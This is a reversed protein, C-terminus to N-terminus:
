KLDPIDRVVLNPYPIKIGAKNFRERVEQNLCWNVTIADRPTDVWVLAGLIMSHPGFKFLRVEVFPDNKDKQAKSRKDMSLPSAEAVERIIEKAKDIDTDYTIEFQVIQIVEEDHYSSNIMDKSLIQSNPIILRRNTIDKIVTHLMKIEEVSGEMNGVKIWHSLTFPRFVVIMAGSVLNSLVDKSAFGIVATAIGASALLSTTVSRIGPDLSIAYSIGVILITVRIFFILLVYKGPDVKRKARSKRFLSHILKKAIWGLLVSIIIIVIMSIIRGAESNLLNLHDM